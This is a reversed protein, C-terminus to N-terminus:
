NLLSKEQKEKIELIIKELEEITTAKYFEKKHQILAILDSNGTVNQPSVFLQWFPVSLKEAIVNLTNASAEQKDNIINYLSVSSLGVITALEKATMGKEALIEKIRNEM